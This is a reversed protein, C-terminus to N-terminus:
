GFRCGKDDILVCNADPNADHDVIRGIEFPQEGADQLRQMLTSCDKERASVVFGIGCNFTRLMEYEDLKSAKQIWDFSEHRPWSDLKLQIGLKGNLMRPPNEILGGGTIHAMGSTSDFVPLVSKVYIRTPAFFESWVTASPQDQSDVQDLLKRILSFGNSHPGDSALGIVVDNLAVERRNEVRDREVVGVCFGALDYKGPAYMGPMEATEGGPLACGALLCGDSIGKVVREATSVDLKGTAFYDLFLLPEAGHVLIDNVCMAVLDQGITDHRDHAIALEVKTGAGDTGCVLIPDKYNKPLSSLAAFGGLETLIEPRLTRDVSPRIRRVLENGADIDVGSDRYTVSMSLM